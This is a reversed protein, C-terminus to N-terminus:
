ISRKSSLGVVLPTIVLTRRLLSGLVGGLATACVVTLTVAVLLRSHIGPQYATAYVVVDDAVNGPAMAAAASLRGLLEPM